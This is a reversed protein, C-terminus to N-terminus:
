GNDEEQPTIADLHIVFGVAPGPADFKELLADYSGGGAIEQPVGPTYIRFIFSTYYEMRSMM